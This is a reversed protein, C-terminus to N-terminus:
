LGARMGYLLYVFDPKNPLGIVALNKGSLLNLGEVNGFHYKTNFEKEIDKFTIVVDDITSKFLSSMREPNKELVYGSYSCDTHQIIKGMYKAKRCEYFDFHRNPYFMQYLEPSVTASLIILKGHPLPNDSLYHITNPTIYVYEASLLNCIDSELGSIKRLTEENKPIYIKDRKRYGRQICLYNVRSQETCIILKM